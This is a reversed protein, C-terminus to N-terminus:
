CIALYSPDSTWHTAEIGKEVRMRVKGTLRFADLVQVRNTYSDCEVRAEDTSQELIHTAEHILTGAASGDPLDIAAAAASVTMRKRARRDVVSIGGAAMRNLRSCTSAPLHIVPYVTGNEALTYGLEDAAFSSDRNCAVTVSRGALQSAISVVAPAAIVHRPRARAADAAPRASDVVRV